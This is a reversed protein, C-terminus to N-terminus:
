RSQMSMATDSQLGFGDFQTERWDVVLAERVQAAGEVFVQPLNFGREVHGDGAAAFAKRQAAFWRL